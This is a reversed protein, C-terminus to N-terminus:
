DEVHPTVVQTHLEEIHTIAEIESDLLIGCNTCIYMDGIAMIYDDYLGAMLSMYNNLRTFKWIWKTVKSRKIKRGFNMKREKTNLKFILSIM